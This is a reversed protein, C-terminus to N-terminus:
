PLVSNENSYDAYMNWDKFRVSGSIIDVYIKYEIPMIQDFLIEKKPDVNKGYISCLYLRENLIPFIAMSDFEFNKIKMYDDFALNNEIERIYVGSYHTNNRPNLIDKEVLCIDKGVTEIKKQYPTNPWITIKRFNIAHLWLNAIIYDKIPVINKVVSVISCKIFYSTVNHCFLINDKSLSIEKWNDSDNYIDFFIVHSNKLMQGLMYIGNRLKVSIVKNEKWVIRGM